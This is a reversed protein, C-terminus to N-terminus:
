DASLVPSPPSPLAITKTLAPRESRGQGVIRLALRAVVFRELSAEATKKPRCDGEFRLGVKRRGPLVLLRSVGTARSARNPLSQRAIKAEALNKASQQATPANFIGRDGVLVVPTDHRRPISPRTSPSALTGRDNRACRKVRAGGCGDVSFQCPSADGPAGAFFRPVNAHEAVLGADGTTTVELDDGRFTPTVAEATEGSVPRLLPAFFHPAFIHCKYRAFSGIGKDSM